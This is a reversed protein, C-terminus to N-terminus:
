NMEETIWSDNPFNKVTYCRSEPQCVNFNIQRGIRLLIHAKIKNNLFVCFIFLFEGFYFLLFGQSRPIAQLLM